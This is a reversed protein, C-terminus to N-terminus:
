SGITGDNGVFRSGGDFAPAGTPFTGLRALQDSVAQALTRGDINLSLSIPTPRLAGAHPSFMTKHRIGGLWSPLLNELAGPLSGLKGVFGIVANIAANLGSALDDIGKNLLSFGGSLSKWNLAALAALAVGLAAILGGAGILPALLTGLAVTALAALGAALAVMGEGLIRVLEPHAGVIKGLSTFLGTLQSMAAMAPQVLPSGMAQTLATWQKTFAGIAGYPNQAVYSEYAPGLPAVQAALGLDKAQQKLFEPNGFLEIAKAMNTTPAIKALLNQLIADNGHSAAVLAPWVVDKAWGPVNGAYQLSGKIAGPALQLHGGGFGTKQVKHLDLLGMQYLAAAQQKSLTHAGTMLQQLQYLVVGPSSSSGGGGGMEAALIAMPGFAEKLNANMWATGGRVALNQIMAPTLKGGFAAIYNYSQNILEQLKAPDTAIGKLEGARLLRYLSGEVHTGSINSLLADMKLAAPAFAEAEGTSGVVARLEKVTHLYDSLSATPVAKAVDQWYKATIQATEQHTLGLRVLQNQQNVVEEGAKVLKATIDLLGAAGMAAAVGGVALKWRGFQQEIDAVKTKVGLLDRSIIALVPSVKNALGISVAIKYVDM